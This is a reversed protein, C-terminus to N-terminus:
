GSMSADNHGAAQLNRMLQEKLSLSTNQQAPATHGTNDPGVLSGTPAPARNMNQLVAAKAADGTAVAAQQQIRPTHMDAVLKAMAYEEAIDPPMGKDSARKLHFLLRDGAPTLIPSLTVPDVISRGSADQRHLWPSNTKMFEDVHQREAQEAFRKQVIEQAQEQVQHAILPKLFGVPDSIIKQGIDRRYQQYALFKPLITADAGERLKFGGNETPEISEQWAPNYEPPKYAALPDPPSAPASALQKQRESALYLQGYQIWQQAEAVQRQAVQQGAVLAQCFSADDAYRSADAYGLAKAAYDRFGEYTPAAPAAAPAPTGPPTAAPTTPPTAPPTAAAPAAPAPTPEIAPTAPPPDTAVNAVPTALSPNAAIEADLAADLEDM